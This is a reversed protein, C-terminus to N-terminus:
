KAIPNVKSLKRKKPPTLAVINFDDTEVDDARRKRISGLMAKHTNGIMDLTKDNIWYFM